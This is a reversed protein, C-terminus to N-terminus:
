SRVELNVEEIILWRDRAEATPSEQEVVPQKRLVLKKRTNDRYTPSQYALWFHVEISSSDESIITFDSLELSIRNANGIVRERSQRWQSRSDHYRPEFDPHYSSFYSDLFQGEWAGVWNRVTQEVSLSAANIEDVELLSSSAQQPPEVAVSAMRSASEKSAEAPPAVEVLEEPSLSEPVSDAASSSLNAETIEAIADISEEIQVTPQETAQETALAVSALSVNVASINEEDEESLSITAATIDEGSAPSVVAASSDILLDEFVPEAIDAATLGIEEATVLSLNSDSVPESESIASQLPESVPTVPEVESFVEAVETTAPPVPNAEVLIEPEAAVFTAIEDASLQETDAPESGGLQQYLVALSAIVLVATLPGLALWQNNERYPLTPLPESDDANKIVGLLEEKSVVALDPQEARAAVLLHAVSSALGPFGKCSKYFYALAPADLQLEPMGVKGLYASLFQATTDADMPDLVFNHSVRQHLSKFEEKDLLRKELSPEGCLLINVIGKRNLQIDALRYIELLTIDTLLHADDFVIVIPKDPQTILLDELQSTLSVAGPLNLEQALMARLMEPSEIAYDFYVVQYDKRQLFQTLKECISSKGTRPQGVLKVFAGPECLASHLGQLAQLYPGESFYFAQPRVESYDM